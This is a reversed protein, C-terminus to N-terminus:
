PTVEDEDIISIDYEPDRVSDVTYLQSNLTIRKVLHDQISGSNPPIVLNKQRKAEINEDILQSAPISWLMIVPISAGSNLLTSLNTSWGTPLDISVGDGEHFHSNTQTVTLITGGAGGDAPSFVVSVSTGNVVTSFTGETDDESAVQCTWNNFPVSNGDKNCILSVYLAPRSHCVNVNGWSATVTGPSFQNLCGDGTPPLGAPTPSGYTTPNFHTHYFSLQGPKEVKGNNTVPWQGVWPTDVRAVKCQPPTSTDVKATLSFIVTVEVTENAGVSVTSPPTVTWIGSTMAQRKASSTTWSLPQGSTSFSYSDLYLADVNSASAINTTDFKVQLQGVTLTYATSNTLKARMYAKNGQYEVAIRVMSRVVLYNWLNRMAQYQKYLGYYGSASQSSMPTGSLQKACENMAEEIKKVYGALRIYDVCDIDPRAVDTISLGSEAPAWRFTEGGVIDLCGNLPVVENIKSLYYGDANDPTDVPVQIIETVGNDVVELGEYHRFDVSVPSGIPDLISTSHAKICDFINEYYLSQYGDKVKCNITVNNAQEDVIFTVLSNDDMIVEGSPRWNFSNNSNYVDISPM